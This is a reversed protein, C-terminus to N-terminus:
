PPATPSSYTGARSVVLTEGPERALEAALSGERGGM